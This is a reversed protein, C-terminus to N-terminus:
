LPSVCREVTAAQSFNLFRCVEVFITFHKRTM